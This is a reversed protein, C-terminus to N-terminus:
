GAIAAVTAGSLAAAPPLGTRAGAFPDLARLVAATEKDAVGAPDKRDGVVVGDDMERVWEGGDAVPSVDGIARKM